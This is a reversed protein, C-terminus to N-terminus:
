RTFRKLIICDQCQNRASTAVVIMEREAQGPGPTKNEMQADDFEPLPYRCLPRNSMLIGQKLIQVTIYIIDAFGSWNDIM